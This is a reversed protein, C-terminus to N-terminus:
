QCQFIELQSKLEPTLDFEEISSDAFKVKYGVHVMSQDKPSPLTLAEIEYDMNAVLNKGIYYLEREVFKQNRTEEDYEIDDIAPIVSVRNVAQHDSEKLVFKRCPPIKFIDRILVSRERTGCEILDLLRPTAEDITVTAKGNGSYLECVHCPKGNDKNCTVTMEYPIIFPSSETGIVRVNVKSRKYFLKREDIQDLTTEVVEDGIDVPNETIPDLVEAKAVLAMFDQITNGAKIYDSFDANAPKHIPLLINKISKSASSVLAATKYAGEQGPEDIDYCIVIDKNIFYEKWESRLKMGAGSTATIANLGLQNALICDKEGEMIYIEQGYLNEFPFLTAEAGRTHKYKDKAKPAYKKIFLVKDEKIIPIWYRAESPDFGIKYKRITDETFMTIKQLDKLLVPSNFLIEVRKDVDGIHITPYKKKSHTKTPADNQCETDIQEMSEALTIDNIVASFKYINGGDYFKCGPVFCKFLGSKMNVSFSPDEDNHYPCPARLEDGSVQALSMDIHRAYFKEIYAPNM